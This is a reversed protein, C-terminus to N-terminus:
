SGKKGLSEIIDMQVNKFTIDVVALSIRLAKVHMSATCIGPWNQRWIIKPNYGWYIYLIYYNKRWCMIPIILNSKISM